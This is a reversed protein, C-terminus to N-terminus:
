KDSDISHHPNAMRSLPDAHGAGQVGAAGDLRHGHYAILMTDWLIGISLTGRILRM